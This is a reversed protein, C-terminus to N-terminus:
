KYFYINYGDTWRLTDNKLYRLQVKLRHRGVPLDHVPIVYEVGPQRRGKHIRFLPSVAVPFTDNISLQHIQEFARLLEDYDADSNYREGLSFAGRVKLGAYQSVELAPNVKLLEDDDNIPRYPLFLRLYNNEPYRSSLSARWIQDFLNPDEDDYNNPDSWVTGDKIFYPFYSYKIQKLSVLTMIVFIAVPLMVALRRGFRNDILNYYLPRYLRALTIWGMFVYLYYYPRNLWPIRKLLGLTIFDFMYIVGVVFVFVSAAGAGVLIGNGIYETDTIWLYIAQIIISFIAWTALSIFCFLILFAISFAVSCNRELREIYADFSGTRRRLRNTFRPKYTFRDYDIEGSISRLGIAAIWIGRLAVHFLLCALLSLYATRLTYYIFNLFYYKKSANMMLNLDYEWDKVPGWGGILLFVVFGSILLELQWSERQLYDLWTTLEQENREEPQEQEPMM